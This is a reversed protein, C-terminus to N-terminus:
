RERSAYATYRFTNGSVSQVHFAIAGKPVSYTETDHFEDVEGRGAASFDDAPNHSWAGSALQFWIRLVGTEGTAVRAGTDTNDHIHLTLRNAGTPINVRLSTSPVAPASTTIDVTEQYRIPADLWELRGPPRVPTTDFSRWCRLTPTGGSSRKSTDFQSNLTAQGLPYCLSWNQSAPVVMMCSLGFGWLGSTNAVVDGARLAFADEFPRAHHALMEEIVALETDGSQALMGSFADDRQPTCLVVAGPPIAGTLGIAALNPPTKVVTTILNSQAFETLKIDIVNQAGRQVTPRTQESPALLDSTGTKRLSSM